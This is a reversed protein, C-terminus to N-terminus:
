LSAGTPFAFYIRPTVQIFRPEPIDYPGIVIYDHNDAQDTLQYVDLGSITAIAVLPLRVLWDISKALRGDFEVDTHYLQRFGVIIQLNPNALLALVLLFDVRWAGYDYMWMGTLLATVILLYLFAPWTKLKRATMRKQLVPNTDGFKVLRARYYNFVAAWALITVWPVVIWALPMAVGKPLALIVASTKALSLAITWFAALIGIWFMVM